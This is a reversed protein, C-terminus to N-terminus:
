AGATKGAKRRVREGQYRIGKGKYPEPPRVARIEAAVQGVMQKDPGSITMTTPTPTDITIGPPADYQVTHSYGASIKVGKGSKEAKYGVGVIELGKTYGQTVGLVMNSILSRTLGHLARHRASDSSRVVRVERGDLSVDIASHVDLTLDGKPGKVRVQPRSLTVEVGDPLPIPRKGIRSM